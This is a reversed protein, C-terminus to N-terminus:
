LIVESDKQLQEDTIIVPNASDQQGEEPVHPAGLGEVIGDLQALLADLKDEVDEAVVNAHELQRLLEALNQDAHEPDESIDSRATSSSVLAALEALGPVSAQQGNSHTAESGTANSNPKRSNDSSSRLTTSM